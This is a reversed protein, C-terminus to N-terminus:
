NNKLTNKSFILLLNTLSRFSQLTNISVFFFAINVGFLIRVGRKDFILLQRLTRFSQIHTRLPQPLHKLTVKCFHTGSFKRKHRHPASRLTKCACIRTCPGGDVHASIDKKREERKGATVLIGSPTESMDIPPLASPRAHASGPTLVGMPALQFKGKRLLKNCKHCSIKCFATSQQNVSPSSNYLIWHRALMHSMPVMILFDKLILWKHIDSTRVPKNELNNAKLNM